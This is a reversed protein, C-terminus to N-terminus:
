KGSIERVLTKLEQIEKQQKEMELSLSQMAKNQQENTKNQAIIYLTLEEIKEQQIKAMEGLSIGEEAVQKASPVNPLHGKEAIHKEVELLTPLQYGKAFVYDAWTTNVRVEEALLGGKVFMKYNTLTVGGATTPFATLGGVGVKGNLKILDLAFDGWILPTSNEQNDIYLKNDTTESYGVNKGIYVNNSGTSEGGTNFGIYTNSSGSNEGGAYQGIFVNANGDNNQGSSNGIFVNNSGTTNSYGSNGGVFVNQDGVTNGAGATNGVFTNSIGGSTTVKGAQYGYFANGSGATGADLGGSTLSSTSAVNQADALLSALSFVGAFFLTITKM